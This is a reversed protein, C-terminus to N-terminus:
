RGGILYARQAEELALADLRRRQRETMGAGRGPMAHHDVFAFGATYINPIGEGAARWSLWDDTGYHIDLSPGIRQWMGATMFPVWGARVRAGDVAPVRESGYWQTTGDPRDIRAAPYVGSEVAEVAAVDWGELPELDDATFHLYEGTAQAAGDNWAVGCTPRNTVTVIQLPHRSRATYADVCRRYDEERGDITPIVVTIM